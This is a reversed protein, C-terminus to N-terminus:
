IRNIAAVLQEITKHTYVQRTIDKSSHGLILQITKLDVEANALLTACTHRGDHPLHSMPRLISSRKWVHENLRDYTYMPKGDKSDIVLYEQDPHYLASVLPLIKEAIPVVRNRGAATKMGGLMYRRDLHVNETKIRLLETPRLGTYIYILAFRAGSDEQYHGWLTKIQAATFPRHLRSMTQPPLRILSMIERHPLELRDSYKTMKNYLTKMCKKSSYGLPCRDICYQPADVKIDAWVMDKIATYHGYAATYCHPIKEGKYEWEGWKQYLEEFTIGRADLSYPNHNYQDLAELAERRTAFYGLYHRIQVGEDTWGTTIRVAFPKRRKGSLKRISGYGSPLRM